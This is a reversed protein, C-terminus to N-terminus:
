TAAEQRAIEFQASIKKKKIPAFSIEYANVEAFNTPFIADCIVSYGSSLTFVGSKKFDYKATIPVMEYTPIQYKALVQAVQKENPIATLNVGKSACLLEVGIPKGNKSYDVRRGDDLDKGYAYEDESLKIYIADVTKDYQGKVM